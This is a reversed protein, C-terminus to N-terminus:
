AASELDFCASAFAALDANFRDPYEWFPSHGCAEYTISRASPIAAANERQTAPPAPRDNAGSVILAPKGLKALDPRYDEDRARAFKRIHPPCLMNFGVIKALDDPDPQQHFCARVFALTAALNQEQDDAIMGKAAVGPDDARLARTEPSMHSGTTVFSCVLSLGSIAQDGFQRVYDCAVVGGMSWGLLVPQDLSLTEIIAQVDGAWPGSNDYASPDGPKDSAGHGRLDPMVLRFRDSLPYQRVWSLHHQSWGHLLVIAPADPPGLDFVQLAVGDHGTVSYQRM